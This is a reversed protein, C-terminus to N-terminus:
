VRYTAESISALVGSDWVVAFELPVFRGWLSDRAPGMGGGLDNVM